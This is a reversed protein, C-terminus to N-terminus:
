QDLSPQESPESIMQFYIEGSPTLRLTGTLGNVAEMSMTTPALGRPYLMIGRPTRQYIGHMGLADPKLEFGAALGPIRRPDSTTEIAAGPAAAPEPASATSAAVSESRDSEPRQAAPEVIPERRVVEPEAVPEAIPKAAAEIPRAMAEASAALSDASPTETAVPPPPAAAVPPPTALSVRGIPAINKGVQEPTQRGIPDSGPNFVLLYATGVVLFTVTVQLLVRSIGDSL